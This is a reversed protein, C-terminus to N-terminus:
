KGGGLAVRGGHFASPLSRMRPERLEVGANAARVPRQRLSQGPDTVGVLTHGALFGLKLKGFQDCLTGVPKIDILVPILSRGDAPFQQLRSIRRFARGSRSAREQEARNASRLVDWRM